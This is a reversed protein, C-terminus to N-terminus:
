TFQVSLNHNHSQFSSLSTISTQAGDMRPIPLPQHSRNSPRNTANIHLSFLALPQQPDRIQNLQKVRDLFIRHEHICKRKAESGMVM